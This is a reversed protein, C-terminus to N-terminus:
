EMLAALGDLAEVAAIYARLAAGHLGAARARRTIPLAELQSIVRRRQRRARASVAKRRKERCRRCGKKASRRSSSRTGCDINSLEAPDVYTILPESVGSDVAIRSRLDAKEVTTELSKQCM